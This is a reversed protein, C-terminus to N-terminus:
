SSRQRRQASTSSRPATGASEPQHEPTPEGHRRDDRHEILDLLAITSPNKPSGPQAAWRTATVDNRSRTRVQLGPTLKPRNFRLPTLESTKENAAAAITTTRTRQSPRTRASWEERDRDAEDDAARDAIDGVPQAEARDDIEKIKM